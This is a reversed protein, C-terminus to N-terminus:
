PDDYHPQVALKLEPWRERLGDVFRRIQRRLGTEDMVHLPTGYQEALATVGVGGIALEGGEPGDARSSQEPLVSWLEGLRTGAPAPQDLTQDQAM